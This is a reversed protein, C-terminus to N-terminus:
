GSFSKLATTFTAFPSILHPRPNLFWSQTKLLQSLRRTSDQEESLKSCRTVPKMRGSRRIINIFVITHSPLSGRVVPVTVIIDVPTKTLPLQEIDPIVERACEFVKALYTTVIETPSRWTYPPDPGVKRVQDFSLNGTGKLVHLTLDLEEFRSDQPQLELKTNVMTIADKSIDAGWNVEGQSAVAFSIVSPVKQLNSM